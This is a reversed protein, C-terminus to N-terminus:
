PRTADHALFRDVHREVSLGLHEWWGAARWPKHLSRRIRRARVESGFRWTWRGNDLYDGERVHLLGLRALVRLADYRFWRCRRIAWVWWPMLLVADRGPVVEARWGWPAPRRDWMMGDYEALLGRHGVGRWRFGSQSALWYLSTRIRFVARAHQREQAAAALHKWLGAESWDIPADELRRVAADVYEQENM